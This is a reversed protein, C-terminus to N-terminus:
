YLPPLVIKIITCPAKFFSSYFSGSDELSQSKEVGSQRRGFFGFRSANHRYGERPIFTDIIREISRM